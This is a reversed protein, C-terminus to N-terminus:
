GEIPDLTLCGPYATEQSYLAQDGLYEEWSKFFATFKMQIDEKISEDLYAFPCVHEPLGEGGGHLIGIEVAGFGSPSGNDFNGVEAIVQGAMVKDGVTVTPNVVHETEYVWRELKGSETIQISIDGSWLTPMAAVIGDVLSRVQTGLPVIFTPQPNKKDPSASSAPIFFGYGMFLRDFQLKQKTFVFDGAKGTAPDYYDINVGINKLLLPPTDADADADQINQNTTNSQPIISRPKDTNQGFILYAGVISIIVFLGAIIPIFAFGKQNMNKAGTPKTEWLDRLTKPLGLILLLALPAGWNAWREVFDWVPEGVIPRMLATWFGWVAAWILVIRMPKLLIVFAIVIDIIGVLTLLQVSLVDSAGTLQAIWDLWQKKGQLAFVGHGLFEGFIAIRLVWEIIKTNQM